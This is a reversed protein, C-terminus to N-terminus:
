LWVETRTDNQGDQGDQPTPGPLLQEECRCGPNYHLLHPYM